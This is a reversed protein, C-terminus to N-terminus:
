DEPNFGPVRRLAGATGVWLVHTRFDAVAAVANRTAAATTPNILRPSGDRSAGRPPVAFWVLNSRAPIDVEITGVRRLTMVRKVIWPQAMAM